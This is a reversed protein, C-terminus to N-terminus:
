TAKRRPKKPHTKGCPGLRLSQPSTLQLDQYLELSELGYGQTPPSWAGGRPQPRFRAERKKLTHVQRTCSKSSGQEPHLSLCSLSLPLRTDRHTYMYMYTCVYVFVHVNVYVSTCLHACACVCTYIYAVYM